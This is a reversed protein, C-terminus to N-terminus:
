IQNTLWENEEKKYHYTGESTLIVSSGDALTVPSEEPKAWSPVIYGNEISNSPNMHVSKTGTNHCVHHLALFNEIVDKGGQSRLQRHHLAWGELLPKGCKECYGQCREFVQERLNKAM